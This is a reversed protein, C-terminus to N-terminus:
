DFNILELSGDRQLKIELEKTARNAWCCRIAAFSHQIYNKYFLLLDDTRQHLISDYFALLNHICHKLKILGLQNWLIEIQHLVTLEM